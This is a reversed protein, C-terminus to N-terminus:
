DQMSVDPHGGHQAPGAARLSRDGCAWLERTPASASVRAGNWDGRPQDVPCSAGGEFALPDIVSFDRLVGSPLLAGYQLKGRGSM